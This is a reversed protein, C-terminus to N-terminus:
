IKEDNKGIKKINEKKDIETLLNIFKNKVYIVKLIPKNKIFSCIKVDELSKKLVVNELENKDVFIINKFKNDIQVIIKQKINDFVFEKYSPWDSYVLEKNKPFFIQNLEETIHPAIPNLLQLFFIIQKQGIKKLKYVQNIFIMLQSIIKNFKLKDYYETVIKITDNMIKNLPEFEEEKIIYNPFIKYVRNIFRQIGKLGNETWIKNEELPGLFMIYTRLVDAGYKNLILSADVGNNKSKSMKLNDKGLIMGQNILKKFPEKNPVLGLDYLFKHWFRSYLLHGVAHEKGGIYLDVPLFYNIKKQAEKSNLPIMGSHNKLIYGIYYWSSGAVQPMTNTDRKYKKGKKQFYLWDYAKSLPSEGDGSIEIKKLKPLKLPLNKDQELFIKNNEDYFVPFPEGWYRQRSFIWDHMKYTYYVYGKKNKKSLEIIKKEAEIFNLNDLFFSNTLFIKKPNELNIRKEDSILNKDQIKKLINVFKLNFKKSFEFDKQDCSPVCMIAGTGYYNLVYDSIWVPIKQKNFPNYVYNGTFVGTKKKNIQRELNSKNKTIKLYENVININEKKTLKPIIHHEPALIIANVGFITSPKTTFVELFINKKNKQKILPFKFIFGKKKGIWKKQIEKIENKWDLINLDTLLREFYDSIKLVWQKMKKKIVPFHGRESFLGKEDQIIEENALVTGLKPCFNVEIDKLFALKKKYLKKFIWQTWKYFDMDSTALEKDWDIGKGLSEIQKKFKAINEYTFEKPNKGTKLAYQEAPLGFSDWGFPHLVNYGQMRKFRNIIDSATYGEIHGVHLGESSPYPFMDLCYFKKKSFNYCTRFTKKKKWHTQWKSEIKKFDYSLM